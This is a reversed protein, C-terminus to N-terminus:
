EQSKLVQAALLRYLHSCGSHELAGSLTDVSAATPRESAPLWSALGPEMEVMTLTGEELASGGGCQSERPSVLVALKEGEAKGQTCHSETADM